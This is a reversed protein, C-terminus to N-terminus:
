SNTKCQWCSYPTPPSSDQLTKSIFLKPECSIVVRFDVLNLRQRQREGEQLNLKGKFPNISCWPFVSALYSSTDKLTNLSHICTCISYNFIWLFILIFSLILLMSQTTLPWLVWSQDNPNYWSPRRYTSFLLPPLPFSVHNVAGKEWCHELAM